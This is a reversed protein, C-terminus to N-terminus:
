SREDHNKKTRKRRRSRKGQKREFVTRKTMETDFMTSSGFREQDSVISISDEQSSSALTTPLEVTKISTGEMESESLEINQTEQMPEQEFMEARVIAPDQAIADEQMMENDNFAELLQIGQTERVTEQELMETQVFSNSEVAHDQTPAEEKMTTALPDEFESDAKVPKPRDAFRRALLQRSVMEAKVPDSPTTRLPIPKLPPRTPPPPGLAVTPQSEAKFPKESLRRALLQRAVVEAKVPDAMTVTYASPKLPPRTPPPPGLLAFPESEAKIPKEALRRALLQRAVAETKVQDTVSAVPPAPKRPPRTPPPANLVVRQILKPEALRRALLARAVIEAKVPDVTQATRRVAKRPPLTPPLLDPAIPDQEVVTDEASSKKEALRRALLERAVVETKVPDVTGPSLPSPKLPPRTAPPPVLVPKEEISPKGFSSIEDVLRRALLARSVAEAKVPNTTSATAPAPNFHPRTPPPPETAVASDFARLAEPEKLVQVGVTKAVKESLAMQDALRRTLLGRSLVEAKVPDTTGIVSDRLKLPPRTSAPNFAVKTTEVAQENQTESSGSPNDQLTSEPVTETEELSVQTRESAGKRALTIREAMDTEPSESSIDSPPKEIAPESATVREESAVENVVSDQVTSKTDVGEKVISREEATDDLFFLPTNQSPVPEISVPAARKEPVIPVFMEGNLAAHIKEMLSHQELGPLLGPTGSFLGGISEGGVFIQPLSSQGTMELLAVRKEAGGKAILGPLWEQGLSIEKYEVNISELLFKAENSFPSLGYTYIVIPSSRIEMEIQDRTDDIKQRYAEPTESSQGAQYPALTQFIPKALPMVYDSAWRLLENPPTWNAYTEYLYKVIDASEAMAVGTNPDVFYPCQTSNGTLELLEQRRPSGKGVSRLTYPIDLEVLVERVLRCFQNGTYDYLVVCKGPRAPGVAPSVQNGRGMRLVTAGIGGVVDAFELLAQKWAEDAKPTSIGTAKNLFEIIEDDGEVVIEKDEEVQAVLRPIIVDEGLEKRAKSTRTCPIVKDVCLDLETIRERVRRCAQNNEIDYLEKLVPPNTVDSAGQNVTIGRNIRLMSALGSTFTDFANPVSALPRGRSPPPRRILTSQPVGPSTWARGQPAFANAGSLVTVLLLITKMRKISTAINKSLRDM